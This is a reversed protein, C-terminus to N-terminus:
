APRAERCCRGSLLADASGAPCEIVADAGPCHAAQWPELGRRVDVVRADADLFVVDIAFRMWATHVSDCGPLLLASEDPLGSLGMLGLLRERFSRAVFLTAGGPLARRELDQLRVPTEDTV